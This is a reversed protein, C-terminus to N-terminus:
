PRRPLAREISKKGIGENKIKWRMQLWNYACLLMSIDERQPLVGRIRRNKLRIHHGSRWVALAERLARQTHVYKVTFWPRHKSEYVFRSNFFWAVNLFKNSYRTTSTPRYSRNKIEKRRCSTLGSLNRFINGLIYGRGM